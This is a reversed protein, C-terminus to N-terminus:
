SLRPSKPPPDLRILSVAYAPCLPEAALRAIERLGLLVVVLPFAFMGGCLHASMAHDEMGLPDGDLLCFGAALAMVAILIVFAQAWRRMAPLQHRMASALMGHLRGAAGGM